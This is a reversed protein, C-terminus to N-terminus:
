LESTLTVEGGNWTGTYTAVGSTNAHKTDLWLANGDLQALTIGSVTIAASGNCRITGTKVIGLEPTKIMTVPIIMSMAGSTASCYIAQRSIPLRQFYRQCELMEAARSKMCYDPLTDATFEGVYLAAWRYAGGAKIRFHVMDTTTDIWAEVKDNGFGALSGAVCSITGDTMCVAATFQGSIEGFDERRIRQEIAGTTTIGNNSVTVVTAAELATWRDIGYVKGTYSTDGRQNIASAFYGNTLKDEIARQQVQGAVATIQDNAQAIDQSLTREQEAILLQLEKKLNATTKVLKAQISEREKVEDDHWTGISKVNDAIDPSLSDASINNLSENLLETLQYLHSYVQQLDQFKKPYDTYFAM